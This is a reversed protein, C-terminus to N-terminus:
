SLEIIRGPQHKDGIERVQFENVHIHLERPHFMFWRSFGPVKQRM